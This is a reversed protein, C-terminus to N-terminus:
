DLLHIIEKEIKEFLNFFIERENKPIKKLVLKLAKTRTKELPNRIGIRVRYFNNGFKKIIGEVGKHGASGRRFCIKFNNLYLDSDDHVIIFNEMTLSYYKKLLGVTKYSENMYTLTKALIINKNELISIEALLQPKAQFDQTQWKNKLWDLFIHGINHYSWQYKKEPNGLGLIIKIKRNM